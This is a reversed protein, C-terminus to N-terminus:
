KTQSLYAKIDKDTFVKSKCILDHTIISQSTDESPIYLFNAKTNSPHAPSILFILLSLTPSFHGLNERAGRPEVERIRIRLIFAFSPPTSALPHVM